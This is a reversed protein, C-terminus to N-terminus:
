YVTLNYLILKCYDLPPLKNKINGEHKKSPSKILIINEM